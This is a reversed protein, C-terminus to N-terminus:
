EPFHIQEKSAALKVYLVRKQASKQVAWLKIPFKKGHVRIVKGQPIFWGSSYQSFFFLM